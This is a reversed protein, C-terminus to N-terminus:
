FPLINMDQIDCHEAQSCVFGIARAVHEPALMQPVVGNWVHKKRREIEKDTFFPTKVMGPCITCVKIGAKSLEFRLGESFGMMGFKTAGYFESDQYTAKKGTISVINIVLGSKQKKMQPVAHKVMIAAGVLNTDIMDKYKQIDVTDSGAWYGYGANNVLVDLSGFKKVCADIIKKVSTEKTVDGTLVLLREKYNKLEKILATCKQKNRSFTVVNYDDNLLQLATAKGMGETGGSILATKNM